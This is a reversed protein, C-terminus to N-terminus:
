IGEEVKLRKGLPPQTRPQVKILNMRKTHTLLHTTSTMSTGVGDVRLPKVHALTDGEGYTFLSASPKVM